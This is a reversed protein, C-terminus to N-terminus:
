LNKYTHAIDCLYYSGIILGWILFLALLKLLSVVPTNVFNWLPLTNNHLKTLNYILGRDLMKPIALSPGRYRALLPRTRIDPLVWLASLSRSLAGWVQGWQSFNLYTSLILGSLLLAMIILKSETTSSSVGPRAFLLGGLFFGGALAPLTLTLGGRIIQPDEDLKFRLSGGNRARGFAFVIFRTSYAATLLIGMVIVIYATLSFNKILIIELIIEKSFFASIFPLGILRLSALFIMGHTIPLSPLGRGMMRIDQYDKRNHIISGTGLFLLAKFFAHSLLHFFRALFAGLGLRLIIVGLQSLTSLAVIKKLDTEFLARLSAILMTLTGVVILYSSVRNTSLFEAHRVLLYVGATVLTSSHVLSSVPTPAAIAAPLWASFPIQARKTTATVMILFAVLTEVKRFYFLYNWSGYVRLYGIRVLLLADGVRNTIATIMGSNYAKSNGYYIVLLYSTLGLGDWGLLLRILNPSLILFYMRLVFGILLFHFRTFYKDGRIYSRSFVLVAATIVRVRVLFLTSLM